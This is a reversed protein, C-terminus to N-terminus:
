LNNQLYIVCILHLRSHQIFVLVRYFILIFIDRTNVFNQIHISPSRFSQDLLTITNLKQLLVKSKSILLHKLKHDILIFALFFVEKSESTLAKADPYLWEFLQSNTEFLWASHVM